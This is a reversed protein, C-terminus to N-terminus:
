RRRFLARAGIKLTDSTSKGDFLTDVMKKAANKMATLKGGSNM